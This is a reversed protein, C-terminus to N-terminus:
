GFTDWTRVKLKRPTKLIKFHGLKYMCETLKNFISPSVSAALHMIKRSYFLIFNSLPGSLLLRSWRKPIRMTASSYLHPPFSPSLPNEISGPLTTAEPSLKFLSIVQPTPPVGWIYPIAPTGVDLTGKEHNQCVRTCFNPLHGRPDLM